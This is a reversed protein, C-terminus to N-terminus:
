RTSFDRSRSRPPAPIPSAITRWSTSDAPPRTPTVLSPPQVVKQSVSGAQPAALTMSADDPGAMTGTSLGAAESGSQIRRRRWGATMTAATASTAMPAGIAHYRPEGTNRRM